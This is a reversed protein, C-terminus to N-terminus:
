RRKRDAAWRESGWRAVLRDAIARRSGPLRTYPLCVRSRTFCTEGTDLRLSIVGQHPDVMGIAKPQDLEGIHMFPPQHPQSLPRGAVLDLLIARYDSIALPAEIGKLPRNSVLFTAFQLNNIVHGHGLFGNEFLEEGHDGTIMLVTDDWVGLRQLREVLMGLHADAHAVANWYTREVHDRNGASIASRDIPPNAFRDTVGAHHYPFHASQFNLYLFTPTRWGAPDALTRDFERILIAEDVLLSGQAAFDFAREDRLEEADVFLDANERMTLTQSIGGFDEPQGSFVGIRYGNQGLDSFLSPDGRLPALQGAFISKVSETTFGVHSYAPAVAGGMRAIRELNPAVPLGDIRKGILDARASEFVVVVLHPRRALSGIAARPRPTPVLILDGGYGDEDIGNGPVDLALPYRASDFPHTDPRLGVLGYGDRDFDTALSALDQAAGWALMRNLGRTADESARPIAVLAGALLAVVAAIWRWRPPRAASRPQDRLLRRALRLCGWWVLMFVALAALVLAIENKGFLLADTLSGGGLQRLLAFDVADSFYSHLQYQATLAFLGLGLYAFAFHLMVPWGAGRGAIAHCARWALLAAIAQSLTYGLVFAGLEGAQDITSSQGFGGTFTGYKRDAIALEILSLAAVM